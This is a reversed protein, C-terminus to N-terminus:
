HPPRPKPVRPAKRATPAGKKRSAGKKSHATGSHFLQAIKNQAAFAYNLKRNFQEGWLHSNDDVDTIVPKEAVM